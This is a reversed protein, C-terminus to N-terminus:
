LLTFDNLPPIVEEVIREFLKKAHITRAVVPADSNEDSDSAIHKKRPKRANTPRIIVVPADSNDDTDSAIHKKTNTPPADSNEDTDSAIQKKNRKKTKDESLKAEKVLLCTAADAFAHCLSPTWKAKRADYTAQRKEFDDPSLKMLSRFFAKNVRFDSYTLKGNSPPRSRHHITKEPKKSTKHPKAEDDSADSANM